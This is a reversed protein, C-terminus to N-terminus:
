ISRKVLSTFAEKVACYLWYLITGVGITFSWVAMASIIGNRGSGSRADIYNMLGYNGILVVVLTFVVFPIHQKKMNTKVKFVARLLYAFLQIIGYFFFFPVCGLGIIISLAILTNAVGTWGSPPLSWVYRSFTIVAPGVLPTYGYYGVLGVLYVFLGFTMYKLKDSGDIAMGFLLGVLQGLFLNHGFSWYILFGVGVPIGWHM